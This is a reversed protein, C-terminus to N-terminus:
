NNPSGCRVWADIKAVVDAALGTTGQPMLVGRDAPQAAGNVNAAIAAGTADTSCPNIYLKGNTLKFSAFESWMGPADQPAIRPESLPQAGGHCGVRDCTATAFAGLVDKSFSVTCAGADLLTKGQKVCEPVAAGGGSTTTDSEGSSPGPPKTGVLANPPGYTPDELGKQYDTTCAVFAAMGALM